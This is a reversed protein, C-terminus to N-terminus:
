SGARVAATHAPGASIQVWNTFDGVVSVPSSRATISDDGLRGNANNGWAWATGNARVAATHFNGASIQVWDTYDGVV